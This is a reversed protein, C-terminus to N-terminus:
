DRDKKEEKEHKKDKERDEKEEKERNKDKERQEKEARERAEAQHKKREEMMRKQQMEHAQAEAKKHMELQQRRMAESREMEARRHAEAKMRTQQELAHRDAPESRERGERTIRERTEEIAQLEHRARDILRELEGTLKELHEQQQPRPGARRDERALQRIQGAVEGTIQKSEVLRGLLMKLRAERPPAPRDIQPKRWPTESPATNKKIEAYKANAQDRTMEGREVAGEIRKKIQDWDVPRQAAPRDRPQERDQAHAASCILTLATLSTLFKNMAVGSLM